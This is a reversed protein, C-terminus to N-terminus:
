CKWKSYVIYKKRNKENSHKNNNLIIVNLSNVDKKLSSIYKNAEENKLIKMYNNNLYINKNHNNQICKEENYNDSIEFEKKLLIIFIQLNEM